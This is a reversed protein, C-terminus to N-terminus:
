KQEGKILAILEDLDKIAMEYFISTEDDGEIDALKQCAAYEMRRTQFLGVIRDREQKKGMETNKNDLNILSADIESSKQSRSNESEGKILWLAAQFGTDWEENPEAGEVGESYEVLGYYDEMRSVIRKFEMQRGLKYASRLLSLQKKSKRVKDMWGKELTTM